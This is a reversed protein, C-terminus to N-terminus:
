SIVHQSKQVENLSNIMTSFAADAIKEWAKICEPTMKASLKELLFQFFDKKLALFEAETIKRRGHNEGQKRLMEIMVEPDDLHDVVATLAYMVSNAHAHFKPNTRLDSIPVDKFSTFRKKAEPNNTFFLLLLETGNGKADQRVIDWCDTVMRKERPTVGLVPDPVDLAPDDDDAAAAASGGWLYSMLGGM